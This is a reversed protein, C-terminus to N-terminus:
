EYTLREVYECGVVQAKQGDIVITSRHRVKARIYTLSKGTGFAVVFANYPMMEHDIFSFGGAAIDRCRVERFSELAPKEGNVAPAIAQLYPYARRPCM